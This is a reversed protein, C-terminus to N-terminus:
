ENLALLKPRDFCPKTLTQRVVAEAQLCDQPQGTVPVCRSWLDGRGCGDYASLRPVSRDVTFNHIQSYTNPAHARCLLNTAEDARKPAVLVRYGRKLFSSNPPPFGMLTVQRSSM